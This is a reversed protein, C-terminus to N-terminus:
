VIEDPSITMPKSFETCVYNLLILHFVIKFNVAPLVGQSGKIFLRLSM